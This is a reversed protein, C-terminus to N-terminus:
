KLRFVIPIEITISKSPKPVKGSLKKITKIAAKNLIDKSGKQVKINGIDGNKLLTFEMLVEGVIRRKRARKPYYLNKRLLTAIVQLHEQLYKEEVTKVPPPPPVYVIAKEVAQSVVVVPIEVKPVPDLKKAILVKKLPKKKPKAVKKVIKKKVIKQKVPKPPEIKPPKPLEKVIPPPVVTEKKVKSLCLCIPKSKEKEKVHESYVTYLVIVGLAIATHIFFSLLLASSNRLM